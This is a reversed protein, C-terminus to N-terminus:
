GKPRVTVVPRGVNAEVGPPAEGGADLHAKILARDPQVRCLGPPVEDPSTIRLTRRGPAVRVDLAGLEGQFGPELAESLEASVKEIESELYRKEERLESLREALSALRDPDARDTM